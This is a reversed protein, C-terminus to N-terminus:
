SLLNKDLSAICHAPTTNAAAPIAMGDYGALHFQEKGGFSLACLMTLLLVLKKMSDNITVIAFICLLVSKAAM